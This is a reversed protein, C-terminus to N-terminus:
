WPLPIIGWYGLVYVVILVFGLVSLAFIIKRMRPFPIAEDGDEEDLARSSGEENGEEERSERVGKDDQNLIGTEDRKYEPVEAGGIVIVDKEDVDWGLSRNSDQGHYQKSALIETTQEGISVNTNQSQKLSPM